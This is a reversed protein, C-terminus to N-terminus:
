NPCITALFLVNKPSRIVHETDNVNSGHISSIFKVNKM